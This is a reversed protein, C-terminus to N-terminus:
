DDARKRVHDSKISMANIPERCSGCIIPSAYPIESGDLHTAMSSNLIEREDPMKKYYFAPRNCKPHIFEFDPLPMVIECSPLLKGLGGWPSTLGHSRIRGVGDGDHIRASFIQPQVEAVRYQAGYYYKCLRELRRRQRWMAFRKIYEKM